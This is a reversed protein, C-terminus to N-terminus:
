SGRRNKRLIFDPLYASAAVTLALFVLAIVLTIVWYRGDERSVFWGAILAPVLLILRVIWYMPNRRVKLCGLGSSREHREFIYPFGEPDAQRRASQPRFTWAAETGCFAFLHGAGWFIMGNSLQSPGAVGHLRGKGRDFISGSATGGWIVCDAGAHDRAAPIRRLPM